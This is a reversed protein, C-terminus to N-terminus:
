KKSIKKYVFMAIFIVAGLIIFELGADLKGTISNSKGPLDDVVIDAFARNIIM